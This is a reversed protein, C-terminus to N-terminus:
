SIGILKHAQFSMRWLPRKKIAKFVKHFALAYKYVLQDLGGSVLGVKGSGNMTIPTEEPLIPQLYFYTFGTFQEYFRLDQTGDYLLKLEDAFTWFIATKPSITLWDLKLTHRDIPVAGNSEMAVYYGLGRLRNTLDCLANFDQVMPEGGTLVVFDSKYQKAKITDIIQQPTLPEGSEKKQSFKTDCFDCNLNCGAFRIFVAPRGTHFGEGQVSEFIQTVYLKNMNVVRTM